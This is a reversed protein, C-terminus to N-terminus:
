AEEGPVLANVAANLAQAALNYDLVANFLDEAALETEENEDSFVGAFLSKVRAVQEEELHPFSKGFESALDVVNEAVTNLDESNAALYEVQASARTLTAAKANLNEVAAELAANNFDVQDVVLQGIKEALM